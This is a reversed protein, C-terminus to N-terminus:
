ATFLHPLVSLHQGCLKLGGKWQFRHVAYGDGPVIKGANGVVDPPDGAVPLQAAASRAAGDPANRIARQADLPLADVGLEGGTM